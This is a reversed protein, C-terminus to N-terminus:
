APRPEVRVPRIQLNNSLRDVHGARDDAGFNVAFAGGSMLTSSWYSRDNFTDKFSGVNRFRHMNELIPQPPVIWQGNYEGKEIAAQIDLANKYRVGDYGHWSRLKGTEKAARNFSLKLRQGFGKQIDEPAAYVDFIGIVRNDSGLPEWTGVYIGKGEIMEGIKYGYPNNFEQVIGAEEPVADDEASDAEVLHAMVRDKDIFLSPGDNQPAYHELRGDAAVCISVGNIIIEAPGFDGDLTILKRKVANSQDDSM